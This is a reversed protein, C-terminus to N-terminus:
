VALLVLWSGAAFFGTMLLGTAFLLLEMGFLLPFVSKLHFGASLM